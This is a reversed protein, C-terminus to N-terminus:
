LSLYCNFAHFNYLDLNVIAKPLHHLGELAAIFDIDATQWFPDIQQADHIRIASVM